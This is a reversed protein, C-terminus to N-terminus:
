SEELVVRLGHPPTREVAVDDTLSSETAVSAAKGWRWCCAFCCSVVASQAEGPVAVVRTDLFSLCRWEARHGIGMMLRVRRSNSPTMVGGAKGGNEQLIDIGLLCAMGAVGRTMDGLGVGESISAECDEYPPGTVRDAALFRRVVGCKTSSSSSSSDSLGPILRDRVRLRLGISVRLTCRMVAAFLFVAAFLAAFVMESSSCFSATVLLPLGTVLPWREGEEALM